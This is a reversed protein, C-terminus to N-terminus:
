ELSTSAGSVLCRGRRNHFDRLAQLREAKSDLAVVAVRDGEGLVQLLVWLHRPHGVRAERRVRRVREGLLARTNGEGSGEERRRERFAM